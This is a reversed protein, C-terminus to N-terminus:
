EDPNELEFVRSNLGAYARSATAANDSIKDTLSERSYGIKIKSTSPAGLPTQKYTLPYIENVQHLDDSVRVRTMWRMAQVDAGTDRLDVANLTVSDNLMAAHADLYAQGLAMLTTANTVDEWRHTAERRGYMNLGYANELYDHSNPEVTAITLPTNKAQGAHIDRAVVDAGLPILVSFTNAADNQIFLDALNKGFVIEQESLPLNDESLYDIYIGSDTYRPILYGGLEKVLKNQLLDWYGVYDDNIFEMEAGSIGAVTGAYFTEATAPPPPSTNFLTDMVAKTALNYVGNINVNHRMQFRRVAYETDMGYAGTIGGVYYGLLTLNVQLKKVDEDHGTVGVVLPVYIDTYGGTIGPNAGTYRINFDSLIEALYEAPTGYFFGPRRKIDNLRAALEECKYNVSNKFNLKANLPRMKMMLSGDMYISIISRVKYINAYEPHTPYITFPLSAIKNADQTLIPNELGYDDLRPDYLPRGDITMTYM